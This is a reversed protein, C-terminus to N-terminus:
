RPYIVVKKAVLRIGAYQQYNYVDLCFYADLITGPVFLPELEAADANSFVLKQTSGSPERQYIETSYAVLDGNTITPIHLRINSSDSLSDKRILPRWESNSCLELSSKQALGDCVNLLTCLNAPSDVVISLKPRGAYDLFKKSVGFHVRVGASYLQLPLNRHLMLIRNGGRTSPVIPARICSTSVKDPELFGYHHNSEDTADTESTIQLLDSTPRGNRSMDMPSSDLIMQEILPALESAGAKSGSSRFDTPSYVDSGAMNNPCPSQHNELDHCSPSSMGPSMGGPSITRSWREMTANPFAPSSLTSCEPLSSELLLVTACSKLVELNMRVDDLSRHTQKGLGFYNALTAMKMDGARRGFRQTLLLLSDITGVPEPAPRGIEEFAEKIRLCDFRLINHGAWVKGHLMGYIRDAVQEFSPAASVSERTIGNCRVSKPSIASLDRPCILTSYSGLEVLRRPCVLIAGFELLAYGQGARSPISTEVDFFAIAAAMAPSPSPPTSQAAAAAAPSAGDLPPSSPLAPPRRPPSGTPMSTGWWSNSSNGEM